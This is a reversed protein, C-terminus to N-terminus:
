SADSSAAALLASVETVSARKKSRVERPEETDSEQLLSRGQRRVPSEKAPAEEIVTSMGAVGSDRGRLKAPAPVVTKRVHLPAQLPHPADRSSERAPLSAQQMAAPAEVRRVDAEDNGLARGLASAVAAHYSDPFSSGIVSVTTRELSMTISEQRALSQQPPSPQRVPEVAPPAYPPPKVPGADVARSPVEPPAMEVDRTARTGRMPPEPVEDMDQQHVPQAPEPAPAAHRSVAKEVLSRTDAQSVEAEAQQEPTSATRENAAGGVSVARSTPSTRAQSRSQSRRQARAESPSVPVDSAAPLQLLRGDDDDRQMQDSEDVQDMNIYQDLLALGSQSRAAASTASIGDPIIDPPGYDSSPGDLVPEEVAEVAEPRVPEKVPQKALAELAERDRARKASAAANPKSMWSARSAKESGSSSRGALKRPVGLLNGNNVGLPAAPAPAAEDLPGEADAESREARATSRSPRPAAHRDANRQMREPAQENVDGADSAPRSDIAPPGDSFDQEEDLAVQQQERAPSTARPAQKKGASVPAVPKEVPKKAPKDVAATKTPKDFTTAKAPKDVATAKTPKKPSAKQPSTKKPSAKKPAQKKPAAKKATSGASKRGTQKVPGGPPAADSGFGYADEDVDEEDNEQEPSSTAARAVSAKARKRSVKAEAPPADAKRKKQQGLAPASSRPRPKPRQATAPAAPASEESEEASAEAEQEEEEPGPAVDPAAIATPPKLGLGSKAQKAAIAAEMLEKARAAEM